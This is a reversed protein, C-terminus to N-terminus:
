GAGRLDAVWSYASPVDRFRRSGGSARCSLDAVIKAGTPRRRNQKEETRGQAMSSGHAVWGDGGQRLAQAQVFGEDDEVEFGGAEVLARVADHRDREHAVLGDARRFLDAVQQIGADGDGFVGDADVANGVGVHLVRGGEGLHGFRQGLM